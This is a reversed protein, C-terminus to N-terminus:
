ACDAKEMGLGGKYYNTFLYHFNIYEMKALCCNGPAAPISMSNDGFFAMIRQADNTAEVSRVKGYRDIQSIYSNTDYRIEVMYLWARVPQSSDTVKFVIRQRSGVNTTSVSDQYLLSVATKTNYFNWHSDNQEKILHTFNIPNGMHPDQPCSLAATSLSVTASLVLLIRLNM